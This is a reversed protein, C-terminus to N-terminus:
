KPHKTMAADIAERLTEHEEEALWVLERDNITGQYEAVGWLGSEYCAYLQPDNRTELWNLRDTDTIHTEKPMANEPESHIQNMLM